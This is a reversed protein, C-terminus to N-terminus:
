CAFNNGGGFLVQGGVLTEELLLYGFLSCILGVEVAVKQGGVLVTESALL